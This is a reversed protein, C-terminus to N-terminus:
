LDIGFESRALQIERERLLRRATPFTARLFLLEWRPATEILARCVSELAKEDTGGERAGARVEDLVLRADFWEDPAAVSGVEVFWQGRDNVIRIRVDGAALLIWCNGFQEYSRQEILEYGRDILLSAARLAEDLGTSM